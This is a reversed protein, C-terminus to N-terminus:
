AASLAAVWGIERLGVGQSRLYVPLLDHFVGAPAGEIVYVLAVIGLKRRLTM